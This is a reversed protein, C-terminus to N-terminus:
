FKPVASSLLVLQAVGITGTTKFFLDRFKAYFGNDGGTELYGLFCTNLLILFTHFWRTRQYDKLLKDVSPGEIGQAVNANYEYLKTVM